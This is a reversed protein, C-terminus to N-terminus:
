PANATTACPDTDRAAVRGFATYIVGDTGRRDECWMAGRTAAVQARVWDNLRAQDLSKLAAEESADMLREHAAHFLEAFGLCTDKGM